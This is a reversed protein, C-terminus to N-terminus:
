RGFCSVGKLIEKLQKMSLRFLRTLINWRSAGTVYQAYVHVAFGHRIYNWAVKRMEQLSYFIQVNKWETQKEIGLNVLYTQM